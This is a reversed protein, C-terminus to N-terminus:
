NDYLTVGRDFSKLGIKLAEKYMVKESDDSKEISEVMKRVFIGRLSNENALNKIESFCTDTKDIIEIYELKEGLVSTLQGIDIFTDASVEGSLTIRYLNVM